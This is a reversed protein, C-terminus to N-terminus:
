AIRKKDTNGFSTSITKIFAEYDRFARIYIDNDELYPEFWKCTNGQVYLATFTIKIDNDKFKAKDAKFYLKFQSLFKRLYSRSDVFTEPDKIQLKTSSQLRIIFKKLQQCSLVLTLAIDGTSEKDSM